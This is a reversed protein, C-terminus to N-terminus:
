TPGASEAQQRRYEPTPLGGVGWNELDIADISLRALAANAAQEDVEGPGIRFTNM